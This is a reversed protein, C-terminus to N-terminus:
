AQEKSILQKEEPFDASLSLNRLDKFNQLTETYKEIALDSSVKGLPLRAPLNDLHNQVQNIIIAAAKVPDGPEHHAGDAMQKIFDGFQNYDEHTPMTKNSSRGAWDTRFGSPEVLMTKIGLDKVEKAISETIGEVAYKTGHYFALTPFSYLGGISSFNVIVGSKQKRMIPLIERTIDVLGWVNVDFMYKVDALNSEEFTGFYGLGANNVLVDVTGFATVADKAANVVQEHNTVDLIVKAIQGHNYQDLYDLQGFKRSTAVLNVDDRQALQTALEKGFGTHTGTVLWTKKMM